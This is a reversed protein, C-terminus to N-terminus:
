SALTEDIWLALAQESQAGVKTALVKGDRFLVFAPISMIGLPAAVEPSADIDVKAFKVLDGKLGAVKEFIPGAVQCPGCWPAWFDVITIGQSITDQFNEVTLTLVNQNMETKRSFLNEGCYWMGMAQGVQPCLNQEAVM